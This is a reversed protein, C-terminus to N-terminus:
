TTVLDDLTPRHPEGQFNLVNGFKDRCDEALRKRCGAVATFTDGVAVPLVAPLTLTFVGGAFSRVKHRTGANAGTTFTVIGEGFYDAAQTAATATFQQGGADVSTVVLGAHTFATLDKNCEGVGVAGLRSRCTRTSVIGVPQQLRQALHRLEVRVTNDGLVLQGLTGRMLVHVDDAITPAPVDWRYRFLRFASGTWRETLVDDRTFLSGDDLTTLELNDVEFGASSAISSVALGQTHTFLQATAGAHGWPTVDLQLPVDAGTFGFLAGDPRRLLLGYALCTGGSQLYALLPAPITSM